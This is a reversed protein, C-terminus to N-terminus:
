RNNTLFNAKPIQFKREDPYYQQRNSQLFESIELDSIPQKGGELLHGPAWFDTILGDNSLRAFNDLIMKSSEKRVIKIHDSPAITSPIMVIWQMYTKEIILAELRWGNALFITPIEETIYRALDNIIFHTNIRPILLCAYNLKSYGQGPPQFRKHMKESEVETNSSYQVPKNKPNGPASDDIKLQIKLEPEPNPVSVKGVLHSYSTSPGPEPITFTWPAELKPSDLEIPTKIAADPDWKGKIDTSATINLGPNESEEAKKIKMRRFKMAPRQHLNRAPTEKLDEVAYDEIQIQSSRDRMITTITDPLSHAQSTSLRPNVIRAALYKTQHRIIKYSTDPSYLLALIIGVALITAHLLYSNSNLQVQKILEGQGNEDMYRSIISSCNSIDDGHMHDTHALVINDAYIFAEQVDLNTITNVIINRIADKDNAWAPIEKEFPSTFEGDIVQNNKYDCSRNFIEMLDSEVFPKSLLRWPRIDDVEEPLDKKSILIIETGPFKNRILFASKRAKEIGLEMDLLVYDLSNNKEIFNVLSKITSVSNVKWIKNKRVSQSVLEGFDSFPTVVMVTKDEM